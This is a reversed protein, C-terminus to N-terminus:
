VIYNLQKTVNKRTQPTESPETRIAPISSVEQQYLSPDKGKPPPISIKHQLNCFFRKIM